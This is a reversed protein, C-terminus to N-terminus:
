KNDDDEDLRVVDINLIEDGSVRWPFYKKATNVIVKKASNVFDEVSGNEKDAVYEGYTEKFKALKDDFKPANNICDEMGEKLNPLDNKSPYAAMFIKGTEQLADLAGSEGKATYVDELKFIIDEVVANADNKFNVGLWIAVNKMEDDSLLKKECRAKIQDLLNKCLTHPNSGVPPITNEPDKIISELDVTKANENIWKNFESTFDKDFFGSVVDIIENVSMESISTMDHEKKYLNIANFVREWNRPTIPKLGEDGMTDEHNSLRHWRHYEGGDKATEDFIFKLILNDCGKKAAWEKWENPEPNLHFMRAWRDKAAGGWSDWVEQVKADDCPRNSCAIITWKSGIHWGNVEGTLLFNMLEDFIQPKCRLFEDMLLIGGGGTVIHKKASGFKKGKLFRGVSMKNNEVTQLGGNAASDLIYDLEEDGTAHYCPLWSKPAENAIKQSSMRLKQTLADKEDDDLDSLGSSIEPFAGKNKEIYSIIDKDSPMTPMMLDGPQINACNVCILSMKDKIDSHEENWTNIISNPITSKGVGPAGFVFLTDVNEGRSKRSISEKLINQFEKYNLSSVKDVGTSKVSGSKNDNNYLVRNKINEASGEEVVDGDFECHEKLIQGMRSLNKYEITDKYEGKEVWNAYEEGNPGFDSAEEPLMSISQPVASGGAAVIDDSIEKSASIKVADSKSLHDISAQASVVPLVNGNNDFIAIFDKIKKMGFRFLNKIGQGIKKVADGVLGENMAKLYENRSLLNNM